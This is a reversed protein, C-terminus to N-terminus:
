GWISQCPTWSGDIYYKAIGKDNGESIDVWLVKTDSPATTQVIIGGGSGGGGSHEDIYSKITAFLQLADAYTMLNDNNSPM